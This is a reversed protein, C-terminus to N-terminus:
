VYRAETKAELAYKVIIENDSIYFYPARTRNGSYLIHHNKIGLVNLWVGTKSGDNWLPNHGVIFATEPPLGLRQLSLKIDEESYEKSSASTGRFENIRNWMLQMYKYEDDHINVLDEFTIGGRVPGAHTIVFSKGIIFVPLHYFFKDVEQVYVEGRKELLYNKFELGQLVGSKVLCEDFTDHNGRIYILKDGLEALLSFLYELIELSSAMQKIKGTEDNHIADGLIILTLLKRKLKSYNHDHNLIAKLNSTSSHLDGIVIFKSSQNLKIIGGPRGELDKPRNKYGIVTKVANRVLQLENKASM